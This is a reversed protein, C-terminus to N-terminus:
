DPQGEEDDDDQVGDSQDDVTVKEYFSAKGMWEDLGEGGKYGDLHLRFSTGSYSDGGVSPDYVSGGYELVLENKSFYIECYKLEGDYRTSFTLVISLGPTTLPFRKLADILRRVSEVKKETMAETFGNIEIFSALSSVEKIESSNVKFRSEDIFDDESEDDDDLTTSDDQHEPETHAPASKQSAIPVRLADFFNLEKPEGPNIIEYLSKMAGPTSEAAKPATRLQEGVTPLPEAKPAAEAARVAEQAPFPSKATPAAGGLVYATVSDRPGSYIWSARAGEARARRAALSNLAPRPLPALAEATWADASAIPAIVNEDSAAVPPLHPPAAAAGEAAAATQGERLDKAGAVIEAARAVDAEAESAMKQAEIKTVDFHKRKLVLILRYISLIVYPSIITQFIKDDHKYHYVSVYRGSGSTEVYDYVSFMNLIFAIGCGILISVFITKLESRMIGHLSRSIRNM